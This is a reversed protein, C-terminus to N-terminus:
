FACQQANFLTTFRKLFNYNKFCVGFKPSYVVHYPLPSTVSLTFILHRIPILLSLHLWHIKFFEDFLLIFRVVTGTTIHPKEKIRSNKQSQVVLVKKISYFSISINFYNEPIIFNKGFKKNRLFSPSKNLGTSHVDEHIWIESM